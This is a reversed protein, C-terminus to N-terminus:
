VKCIWKIWEKRPFLSFFIAASTLLNIISRGKAYVPKPMAKMLRRGPMKVGLVLHHVAIAIAIILIIPRMTDIEKKPRM